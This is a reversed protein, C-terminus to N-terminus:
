QKFHDNYLNFAVKNDPQQKLIMDFFAKFDSTEQKDKLDLLRTLAKDATEKDNLMLSTEYRFFYVHLSRYLSCHEFNPYYHEPIYITKLLTGNPVRESFFNRAKENEGLKLYCARIRSSTFYDNYLSNNADELAEKFKALKFYLESRMQLM